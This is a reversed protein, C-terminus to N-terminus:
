RSYDTLLRTRQDSAVKDSTSAQVVPVSEAPVVFVTRRMALMRILERREYLAEEIHAPSVENGTRARISLYVTAPDTGHLAVVRRTM